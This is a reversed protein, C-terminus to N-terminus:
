AKVRDIAVGIGGAVAVVLAANVFLGCAFAAILVAMLPISGAESRALRWMAAALLGIVAVQLGILASRIVPADPLAFVGAAAVTMMTLAPLLFMITAIIAGPWDGLRWGLFTVMQVVTSGPLPKTYALAESVDSSRLWGRQQVLDRNLLAVTAGLGGFAVAGIRLLAWAISPLGPRNTPGSEPHLMADPLLL